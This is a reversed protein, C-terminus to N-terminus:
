RHGGAFHAIRAETAEDRSLEAAVRGRFMVIVRDCLTLLEPNESSSVLIGVGSQAVDFTVPLDREERRSRRPDARRADPGRSPRLGSGLVVKQQNGGSLTAVPVRSSHARIHMGDFSSRVIPLERRRPRRRARSLRSTSAMVLNERVSMELVLGHLKRDAPVFAVGNRISQRPHKFAVEAGNVEVVGATPRHLGFLAELLESRGAGVLGALGVIEGPAVELGVEAFGRPLTLGRVRACRHKGM